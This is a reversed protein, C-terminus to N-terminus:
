HERSWDEPKNIEEMFATGAAGKRLKADLYQDTFNVKFEVWMPLHDSMQHTRWNTIYYNKKSKEDRARGKSDKKYKEGMYTSYALEDEERFVTDFFQIVGANGTIEFRDKRIRFAIQDFHKNQKANSPLEMLSAPIMFGEDVMAKMTQDKTDFINFDGLLILNRSWATEDETRERLFKALQKIEEVREPSNAGGKGYIIHVTALMFSTWGAHFGCMFPTRALQNVPKYVTKGDVRQRIPPLVLEGALRGFRVKRTDFVFAMREKNGQSGETVDSLIYDWHPGLIRLLKDIAKIDKRVEQIAVIDFRSIIEAIYYFSEKLREGYAPSDFERINWTALLLTDDMNRQPVEQELQERLALLRELTRLGEPTQENIEQYLSM